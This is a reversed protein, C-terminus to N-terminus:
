VGMTENGMESIKIHLREAITIHDSPSKVTILNRYTPLYWKSIRLSELYARM